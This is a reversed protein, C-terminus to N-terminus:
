FGWEDHPKNEKPEEKPVEKSAEILGMKKLYALSRKDPGENWFNMNPVITKVPADRFTLVKNEAPKPVAKPKPEKLLNPANIKAWTIYSPANEEVWELTKGAYKGFKFVM